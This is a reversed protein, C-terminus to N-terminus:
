AANERLALIHNAVKERSGWASPPCENHLWRTIDYIRGLSIDDALAVASVLNNELCARLFSGTPLGRELYRTMGPQLHVPLKSVDTM